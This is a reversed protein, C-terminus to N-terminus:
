IMNAQSGRGESATAYDSNIGVLHESAVEGNEAIGAASFGTRRGQKQSSDDFRGFRLCCDTRTHVYLSRCVTAMRSRAPDALAGGRRLLRLAQRSSPYRLPVNHVPSHLGNAHTGCGHRSASSSRSPQRSSPLTDSGCQRWAMLPMRTSAKPEPVVIRPPSSHMHACERIKALPHVSSTEDHQNLSRSVLM